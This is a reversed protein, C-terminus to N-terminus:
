KLLTTQESHDAQVKLLIGINEGLNSRGKDIVVYRAHKNSEQQM